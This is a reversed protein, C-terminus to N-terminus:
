RSILRPMITPPSPSWTRKLTRMPTRKQTKFVSKTRIQFTLLNAESYRLMLFHKGGLFHLKHLKDQVIRQYNTFNNRFNLSNQFLDRRKMRYFSPFWLYKEPFNQTIGFKTYIWESKQKKQTIIIKSELLGQKRLNLYPTQPVLSTKSAALRPFNRM